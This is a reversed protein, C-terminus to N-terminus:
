EFMGWFMPVVYYHTVLMFVTGALAAALPAALTATFKM